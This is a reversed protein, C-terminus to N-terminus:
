KNMLEEIEEPNLPTEDMLNENGNETILIDNELRIGFGKEPIYIGPENTLIMGPQWPTDNTGADHVDLGLFHGTGHMYYKKYALEGNDKIDSKTLLGISLLQEQMVKGVEENFKNITMRPKMLKTAETQVTLVANYVQLQEKTFKGSVPITRSLDAAYNNVEAGFDLLLLDGDKCIKNNETYHLINNDKGSAVIPAYAHHFAKNRIFEHTIEAMVEYEGVGPKVFKLIRLFADRTISIAKKIQEIEEQQKVLRAKVLYPTLWKYNHLPFMYKLKEVFRYESDNYFRQYRLSPNATMYVNEAYYMLDGLVGEFEDTFAINEVGSIEKADDFNLKHGEWVEIKKNSRRIFLMERKSEVPHCNNIMLITQEQKIGTLYFLDSSQRYSFTQDGNRPLEDASTIFIISNEPLQEIIKRRNRIFFNKDIM